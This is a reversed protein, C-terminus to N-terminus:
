PKSSTVGGPSGGPSSQSHCSLLTLHIGLDDLARDQHQRAPAVPSVRKIARAEVAVIRGRPVLHHALDLGPLMGVRHIRQLHHGLVAGLKPTEADLKRRELDDADLPVGGAVGLRRGRRPADLDRTLVANQQDAERVVGRHDLAGPRQRPAAPVRGGLRPGRRHCGELLHELGERASPERVIECRFALDTKPRLALGLLRAEPLHRDVERGVLPHPSM